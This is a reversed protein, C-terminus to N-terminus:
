LVFARFLGYRNGSRQFKKSKKDKGFFRRKELIIGRTEIYIM